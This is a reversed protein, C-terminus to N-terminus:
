LGELNVDYVISGFDIKNHGSSSPNSGYRILDVNGNRNFIIRAVSYDTDTNGASRQFYRSMKPRVGEPLTLVNTLSTYAPILAGNNYEISGTWEVRATGSGPRASLRYYLGNDHKNGWGAGMLSKASTWGRVRALSDQDLTGDNGEFLLSNSWTKYFRHMPIKDTFDNNVSTVNTYRYEMLRKVHEDLVKWNYNLQGEVDVLESPDTKYLRFKATYDGM